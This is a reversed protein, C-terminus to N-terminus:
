KFYLKLNSEATTSMVQHKRQTEIDILSHYFKFDDLSGSFTEIPNIISSNLTWATGSAIYLPCDNIAMENISNNKKSTSILEANLYLNIFIYYNYFVIKYNLKSFM